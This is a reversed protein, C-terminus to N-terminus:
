DLRKSLASRINVTCGANGEWDNLSGVIKINGTTASVPGGIGQLISLNVASPTLSGKNARSNIWDWDATVSGSLSFGPSQTAFIRHVGRQGVFSIADVLTPATLTFRYIMVRADGFSYGAAVCTPTPPNDTISSMGQFNIFTVGNQAQANSLSLCASLVVGLLASLAAGALANLRRHSALM